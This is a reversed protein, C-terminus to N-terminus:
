CHIETKLSLFVFVIIKNESFMNKLMLSILKAGNELSVQCEIGLCALNLKVALM